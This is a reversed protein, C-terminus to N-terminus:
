KHEGVERILAEAWGELAPLNRLARAHELASKTKGLAAFAEGLLMHLKVRDFEALDRKFFLEIDDLHESLALLPRGAWGLIQETDWETVLGELATIEEDADDTYITPVGVRSEIWGAFRSAVAGLRSGACLREADRFHNFHFEILGGITHALNRDYPALEEAAKAYRALYAEHPLSCDTAREKAMLGYLYACIGDCYGIASSYRSTAAIFDEIARMDLRRCAAMSKFQNEVGCLDAESAVRIELEFQAEVGEKGLVIRCVDNSIESLKLGLRAVVVEHGNLVARTAGEVRIQKSGLPRTIRVRQTGLERGNLFLAPRYLPHAEFRHRRLDDESGFEQGCHPCTLRLPGPKWEGTLGVPQHFEIYGTHWFGM